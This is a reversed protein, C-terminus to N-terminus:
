ATTNKLIIQLMIQEGSAPDTAVGSSDQMVIDVRPDSLDNINSVSRIVMHPAAPAGSALLPSSSVMMVGGFNERLHIRFLGASLREVSKVGKGSVLTPAGLAAFSIQAFIDVLDRQYATRFQFRNSNAM